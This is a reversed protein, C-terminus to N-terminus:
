DVRNRREGRLFADINEVIESLLRVRTEYGGWAMHPTFLANENGLVATYPHEKPFPEKTYVDIGIGGIRGEILARAAAEEDMVAGRAVNILVANKKMLAIEKEGIMGRTDDTLPTHVSIIDAERCLTELSVCLYDETPTRTAAIVRCGLAEAVKAVARGINGLGVIGWTQGAIEHYPPVLRNAVGSESYAGSRVYAAYSPLRTVLSLAMSLTVQAVANTSYGTVNAVAIGRARCADVAINDYGTAAVTILRLKPAADLVEETIRVKNILIVEAERIREGIERSSTLPYVTVEGVANLPSLDLDKGLTEADLVVIKM